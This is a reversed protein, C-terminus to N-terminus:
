EIVGLTEEVKVVDGRKKLIEKVTGSIPEKIEDTAKETQVEVLSDGEQVQDGEEVYWLTVLSEDIKDNFQPLKIEKAM